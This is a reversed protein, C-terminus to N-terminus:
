ESQFKKIKQRTVKAWQSNSFYESIWKDVNMGRCFIYPNLTICRMKNGLEPIGSNHYAIVEKKRLSGMQKRFTGFKLGGGYLVYLDEITLPLAQKNGNKRLICDNYCVFDQLFLALQTEQPTLLERFLVGNGRFNRIYTTDDMFRLDEKEAEPEDFLEEVTIKRFVLTESDSCHIEGTETNLVEHEGDAYVTVQKKIKKNEKQTLLDNTNIMQTFIQIIFLGILFRM